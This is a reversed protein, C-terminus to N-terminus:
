YPSSYPTLCWFFVSHTHTLSLSLSLSHLICVEHVASHGGTNVYPTYSNANQGTKTDREAIQVVVRLVGLAADYQDLKKNINVLSEYCTEPHSEFDMERYHLAKAYAHSRQALEALVSPQIPLPECMHELFECLNLLAQLIEAPIGPNSFASQLTKVLSEQYPDSLEQWCSLFSVNFLERAVPQHAQAVSSCARLCPSPSQRLLEISFRRMWDNWDGSTSRQSVDWARSLQQQNVFLSMLGSSGAIASSSLRGSSSLGALSARSGGTRKSHLLSGGSSGTKFGSRSLAGGFHSGAGQGLGPNVVSMLNSEKGGKDTGGAEGGTSELAEDPSFFSSSESFRSAQLRFPLDETSCILVAVGDSLGPQLTATCLSYWLSWICAPLGRLSTEVLSSFTRLQSGLHLGLWYIGDICEKTVLVTMAVEARGFTDPGHRSLSRSNSSRRSKSPTLGKDSLGRQKRDSCRDEEYDFAFGSAGRESKNHAATQPHALNRQAEGAREFDYLSDFTDLVGRAYLPDDFHANLLGAQAPLAQLTATITQLMRAVMYHLEQLNAGACLNTLTYITLALLRGTQIRVWESRAAMPDTEIITLRKSKFKQKSPTKGQLEIARKPISLTLQLLAHILKCIAPAFLHVDKALLSALVNICHLIRGLKQLIYERPDPRSAANASPTKPTSPPTYRDSSSTWRVGRAGEDEGEAGPSIMVTRPLMLSSLLLPVVSPLYPQIDDPSAMAIAQLLSLVHEQDSIWFTTIIDFLAGLYPRINYTVITALGSLQTLLSERLGANCKRIILLLYPLVQELYQVCKMDLCKFIDMIAQTVTSHHVVLTPDRLVALLVHISKNPYYDMSTPTLRQVPDSLMYSSRPASQSYMYFYAPKSADEEELKVSSRLAGPLTHAGDHLVERPNVKNRSLADDRRDKSTESFFPTSDMTSTSWSDAFSRGGGGGVAAGVIGKSSLSGKIGAERDGEGLIEHGLFTGSNSYQTHSKPEPVLRDSSVVGDPMASVTDQVRLAQEDLSSWQAAANTANPDTTLLHDQGKSNMNAVESMRKEKVCYSNVRELHACILGYKHPDLAGLLGLTRLVERRLSWPATAIRKTLIELCNPLLQPFQLYPVICLGSATVLQGLTRVATEQKKLSSGDQMNAIVVMALRDVYPLLAERMIMSLEGVAELCADVLRVDSSQPLISNILAGMHVKVLRALPTARLFTCLMIASEEKLRNDFGSRLKNILQLLVTRMGPLVPAPNFNSLRGMLAVAEVRIEQTDDNLLFMLADIHHGQSLYFDFRNHLCRMTGLRVEPDSDTVAVTILRELIRDIVRASPSRYRASSRGEPPLSGAVLTACTAVAEKRVAPQIASLYPVVSHLVMPLISANLSAYVAGRSHGTLFPAPTYLAGLETDASVQMTSSDQRASGTSMAGLTRLCLLILDSSKEKHGHTHHARGSSGGSGSGSGSGSNSSSSSGDGGGHSSSAIGGDIGGSNHSSSGHSSSGINNGGGGGSGGWNTEISMGAIGMGPVPHNLAGRAGVRLRQESDITQLSLETPGLQSHLFAPPGPLLPPGPGMSDSHGRLLDQSGHMGRSSHSHSYASSEMHHHGHSWGLVSVAEAMLRSQVRDKHRPLLQSVVTLTKILEPSLGGTLMADLLGIVHDHFPPGLGEVMDAVCALAERRGCMDAPYQATDGGVDEEEVGDLTKARERAKEGSWGFLFGALGSMIGDDKARHARGKANEVRERRRNATSLARHVVNVLEPIRYVLHTGVAICLRGISSLTDPGLDEDESDKILMSVAENLYSRAFANPSFMALEPLLNIMASRLAKNPNDRLAIVPKCVQRFRPLMFDSTHKLMVKLALLSGHCKDVADNTAALGKLMQEYISCFWQLQHTRNKLCSLACSLSSAASLRLRHNPSCLPVWILNFFDDSRAFFVTPANIVFQELLACAASQRHLVGSTLWILARDLEKEVYEAHSVTTDASAMRGLAEALVEILMPHSSSGLAAGLADAFQKIKKENAASTCDILEQVAMVGSLKHGLESSTLLSFVESYLAEEFVAFRELSLSRAAGEVHAKIQVVVVKRDVERGDIRLEVFAEALAPFDSYLEM